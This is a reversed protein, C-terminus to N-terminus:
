TYVCVHPSAFPSRTKLTTLKKRTRAPRPRIPPISSAIRTSAASARQSGSSSAGRSSAYLPSRSITSFANTLSAAPHAACRDADEVVLPEGGLPDVRLDPAVELAARAVLRRQPLVAGGVAAPAEPRADEDVDALHRRLRRHEAGLDRQREEDRREGVLREEVGLAFLRRRPRRRRGPRDQGDGGVRAERVRLDRRSRGPEHLPRLEVYQAVLTRRLGVEVLGDVRAAGRDDEG